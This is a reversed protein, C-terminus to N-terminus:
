DGYGSGYEYCLLSGRSGVNCGYHVGVGTDVYGDSRTRASLSGSDDWPGCEVLEDEYEMGETCTNNYLNTGQLLAKNRAYTSATEPDEPLTGEICFPVNDKVGCAYANTVENNNNLKVGLFYNKNTTGILEEYNDYLGDTLVTPTQNQENWTTWIQTNAMYIFKCGPCSEIGQAKHIDDADVSINFNAYLNAFEAQTYSANEETDSIVLEDSIWIRLRYQKTIESTTNVPVIRKFSYSDLSVGEKIYVYENNVKEQLDVKIYHPDIRTKNQVATGNNISITYNVAKSESTNKGKVTFDIYNDNRARAEENTRPYMNNLTINTANEVLKVYVEGGSLDAQRSDVARYTFFSYSVGLVAVVLVAFAVGYKKFVHKFFDKNANKKIPVYDLEEYDQSDEKLVQVIKRQPEEEFVLDIKKKPENAVLEEKNTTLLINGVDEIKDVKKNRKKKRQQYYYSKSHNHHNKYYNNHKINNSEM